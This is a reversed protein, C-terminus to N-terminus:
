ALQSSEGERVLTQVTDRAQGMCREGTGKM